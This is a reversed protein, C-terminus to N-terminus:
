DVSRQLVPEAYFASIGASRVEKRYIDHIRTEIYCCRGTVLTEGIGDQLYTQCAPKCREYAARVEDPDRSDLLIEGRPKSGYIVHRRIAEVTLSVTPDLIFSFHEIYVRYTKTPINIM